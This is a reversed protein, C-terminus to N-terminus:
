FKGVRGSGGSHSKSSSSGSSVRTRSTTVHTFQDVRGTLNLPMSVFQSARTKKRVNKMGARLILVVVGAVAFSVAVAIGYAPASSARVPDGAAAKALLTDCGGVFARFGSDWDNDRFWPLFQEELAIQGATNCAYEAQDGYVFLAYDREAMSLLLVIGDRGAGEGLEYGHYVSATVDFADGTGYDRFDEVTIVYVGCGYGRSVAGCLEELDQRQSETLLGAADTVYALQAAAQVPLALLVLLVLLVCLRRKM